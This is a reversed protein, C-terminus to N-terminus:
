KLQFRLNSQFFLLHWLFEYLTTHTQGCWSSGTTWRRWRLFLLISKQCQQLRAVVTQPRSLRTEEQARGLWKSSDCNWINGWEFDTRKTCIRAEKWLWFREIANTEPGKECQFKSCGGRVFVLLDIFTDSVREREKLKWENTFRQAVSQERFDRVRAWDNQLKKRHPRGKKWNVNWWRKHSLTQFSGSGGGIKLFM